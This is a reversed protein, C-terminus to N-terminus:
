EKEKGKAYLEEFRPAVYGTQKDVQSVARRENENKNWSSKVTLFRPKFTCDKVEEHEKVIKEQTAKRDKNEMMKIGKTYLRNGSSLGQSVAQRHDSFNRLMFEQKRVREEEKDM